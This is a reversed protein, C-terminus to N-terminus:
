NGLELTSVRYPTMSMLSTGLVLDISFDVERKPPLDNIDEPFVKPFECVGPLDRVVGQGRAELSALMVFVQEMDKVSERVQKASVFTLEEGRDFEFECMGPRKGSLSGLKVSLCSDRIWLIKLTLFSVVKVDSSSKCDAVCLMASKYAAIHHGLEISNSCRLSTSVEGGSTENWVMEAVVVVDVVVVLVVFSVGYAYGGNAVSSSGIEKKTMEGIFIEISKM